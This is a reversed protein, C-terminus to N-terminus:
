KFWPTKNKNKSINKNRNNNLEEQIKCKQECEGEGCANQIKCNQMKSVSVGVCMKYKANQDCERECEGICKAIKSVSM